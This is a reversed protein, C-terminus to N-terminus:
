DRKGNQYHKCEGCNHYPLGKCKQILLKGKFLYDRLFCSDIVKYNSMEWEEKGIM